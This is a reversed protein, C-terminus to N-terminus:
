RGGGEGVVTFPAWFMPHAFYSKDSDQMLSLISRKLAEARGVMNDNAADNFMRTTLKVSANTDVPWHSVLLAKSGAYFFARALGSLAEAGPTGDPAATNCASLIVWDANLKLQAVESATLFGDDQENSMQQTEPPTLVLGPESVGKLQGAVLGHTAFALVQVNSLDMEKVRTETAQSGLYVSGEDANLSIAMAQLEGATNSLRGLSKLEAVDAVSGRSFLSALEVGRQSGEDGDLVPDGFGTFPQTSHDKKAFVRLAKLSSVSPLTSLAYKKALWPVQRYDSFDIVGNKLKKIVFNKPKETVLVGLPLSQLAGDPVVMVHRIGDLYQEAPAFLKQYLEYAMTTNFPSVQKLNTLGTPDLGLRLMKVAEELESRSLAIKHFEARDKRVVWLYSEKNGVLYTVLAEDSSLLSQVESIDLPESSTLAAYEPFREFLEKDTDKLRQELNKLQKRLNKVLVENPQDSPAIIISVLRKDLVRWDNVGDQQARVLKALADGGSAFRVSMRSVAEGASSVTALQKAEFSEEKIEIPFVDSISGVLHAIRVHLSHYRRHNLQDQVKDALMHSSALVHKRRLISNARRIYDLSPLYDSTKELNTALNSYIDVVEPHEGGLNKTTIELSQIHLPKADVYRGMKDYLDAINQLITAVQQHTPGFSKEGIVFSRIYLKEAEPYNGMEANLAALNNLSLAVYPHGPGLNKELIKLARAFHFKADSLQNLDVYLTALSSLSSAVNQPDIPLLSEKITLARKLIPEAVVLRGQKRYLEALNNLTTAVESSIPSFATERIALARKYFQEAEFFQWNSVLLMAYDNLTQAVSPHNPGLIKERVKLSRMYWLKANDFQHESRYLWDLGHLNGADNEQEYKVIIGGQLPYIQGLLSKRIGQSKMRHSKAEKSLGMKKYIDALNEYTKAVRPNLLGSFGSLMELARKHQIIALLPSNQITYAEALNNRINAVVPHRNQGLEEEGMKIAKLYLAIAESIKGSALSRSALMNTEILIESPIAEFNYISIRGPTDHEASATDSFVAMLLFLATVTITIKM